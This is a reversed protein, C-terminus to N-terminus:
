YSCPLDCVDCVVDPSPLLDLLFMTLWVCWLCCRSVSTSKILVPYAVCMVSLMPLRFYIFYSCPLDCMDCVVDLPPLLNLLFMTLWVCWLCCRSASSSRILVPYTVCMVSLMPLPVLDFLFLTLWVCWLCCRSASIYKILVPYTVCMVSLM